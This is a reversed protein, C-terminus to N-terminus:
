VSKADRQAWLLNLSRLKATFNQHMKKVLVLVIGTTFEITLHVDLTGYWSGYFANEELTSASQGFKKKM